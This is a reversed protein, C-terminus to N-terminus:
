FISGLERAKIFSVLLGLERLGVSKKGRQSLPLILGYIYARSFKEPVIRSCLERARLYITHLEWGGLVSFFGTFDIHELLMGRSYPQSSPLIPAIM